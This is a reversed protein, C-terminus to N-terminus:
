KRKLYNRRINDVHENFDYSSLYVGKLYENMEKESPNLDIKDDISISVEIRKDQIVESM